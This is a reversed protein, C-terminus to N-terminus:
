YLARAAELSGLNPEWCGCPVAWGDTIGVGPFETGGKSRRLCWASVHYVCVYMCAGM